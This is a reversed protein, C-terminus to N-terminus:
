TVTIQRCEELTVYSCVENIQGRALNYSYLFTITGAILLLMIIVVLLLKTM